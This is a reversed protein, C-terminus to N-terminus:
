ITILWEFSIHTAFANVVSMKDRVNCVNASINFVCVANPAPNKLFLYTM